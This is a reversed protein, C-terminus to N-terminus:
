DPKVKSSELHVIQNQSINLANKHKKALGELENKQQEKLRSLAREHQGKIAALESAQM